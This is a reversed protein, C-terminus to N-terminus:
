VLETPAHSHHKARAVTVAEKADDLTQFYGVHIQKGEVGIHAVFRKHDAKWSVGRVGTASDHRVPGQNQKNQSSTVLRLNSRRNDLPNRNIHDVELGDPADILFRHLFITRYRSGDRINAQVRWKKKGTCRNPSWRYPISMAKDVDAADIITEMAKGRINLSIYATDGDIRILNPKRKPMEHQEM